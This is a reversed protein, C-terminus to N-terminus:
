GESKVVACNRNYTWVKVHITNGLSKIHRGTGCAVDLLAKGKSKKHIRILQHIRRAEKRYDKGVADYIVDYYDASKEFPSAHEQM